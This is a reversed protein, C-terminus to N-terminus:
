KGSCIRMRTKFISLAYIIANQLSIYDATNKGAINFATGHDPSTRVIPLNATFNVGRSKSLIKFPILGQDHYLSIIGDFKKHLNFSFFSDTPFPGEISLRDNKLSNILPKIKITEETGMLGNEGAHPNLGLIAIKPNKINFDNILSSRFVRVENSLNLSLIVKPVKCLPIHTTLLCIRFQKYVFTMLPNTSNFFNAIFETHGIFGPLNMQIADKCIPLTVLCDIRNNSFAKLAAEISLLSLRGAEKSVEGFQIQTEYEIEDLQIQNSTILLKLNSLLNKGGKLKSLYENQVKKNSFIVLNCNKSIKKFANSCLLKALIELGIGNVDGVTVGINIKRKM